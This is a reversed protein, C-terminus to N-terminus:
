SHDARDHIDRVLNGVEVKKALQEKRAQKNAAGGRRIRYEIHFVHENTREDYHQGVKRIASKKKDEFGYVQDLVAFLRNWKNM